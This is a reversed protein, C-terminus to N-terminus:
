EGLKDKLEHDSLKVLESYGGPLVLKDERYFQPVARHGQGILFQRSEPDLDVRVEIFDINKSKLINKATECNPCQSKSYVIITM